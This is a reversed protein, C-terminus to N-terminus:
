SGQVRAWALVQDPNRVPVRVPFFVKGIRASNIVVTSRRYWRQGGDEFTPLGLRDALVLNPDSLLRHSIGTAAVSERQEQWSQSSVGVVAFGLVALDPEVARYARHEGADFVATADGGDPSRGCGPYVYLVVPRAAVDVLYVLEEPGGVLIV